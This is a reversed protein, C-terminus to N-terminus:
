LRMSAARSSARSKLPWAGVSRRWVLMPSLSERTVCAGIAGESECQTGREVVAPM